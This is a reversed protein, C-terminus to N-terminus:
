GYCGRQHLDHENLAKLLSNLM